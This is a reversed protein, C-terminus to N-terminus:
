KVTEELWSSNWAIDQNMMLNLWDENKEGDSFSLVSFFFFLSAAVPLVKWSLYNMVDITSEERFSAKQERIRNLVRKEFDDAPVSESATKKAEWLLHELKGLKKDKDDPKM